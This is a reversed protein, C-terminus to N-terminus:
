VQEHSRLGFMWAAAFPRRLPKVLFFFAFDFATGFGLAAALSLHFEEPLARSDTWLHCVMAFTSVKAMTKTPGFGVFCGHAIIM